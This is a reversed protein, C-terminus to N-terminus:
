SRNSQLNEWNCLFYWAICGTNHIITTERTIMKTEIYIASFYVCWCWINCRIQWLNLSWGQHGCHIGIGTHTPSCEAEEELFDYTILGCYCREAIKCQLCNFSRMGSYCVSPITQWRTYPVLSIKLPNIHFKILDRAGWYILLESYSVWRITFKIPM